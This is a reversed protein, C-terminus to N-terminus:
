VARSAEQQRTARGNEERPKAIVLQTQTSVFAGEAELRRTEGAVVEDTVSVPLPPCKLIM